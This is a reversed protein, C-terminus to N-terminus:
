RLMTVQREGEGESDFWRDEGEGERERWIMSRHGLGQPLREGLRLLRCRGDRRRGKERGGGSVGSRAGCLSYDVDAATTTEGREVM